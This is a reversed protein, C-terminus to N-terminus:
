EDEQYPVITFHGLLVNQLYQIAAAESFWRHGSGSSPVVVFELVMTALCHAEQKTEIKRISLQPPNDKSYKM